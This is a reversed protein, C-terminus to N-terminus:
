KTLGFIPEDDPEMESLNKMFTEYKERHESDSLNYGKKQKIEELSLSPPYLQTASVVKPYEEVKKPSSENQQPPTTSAFLMETFKRFLEQKESWELADILTLYAQIKANSSSSNPTNM